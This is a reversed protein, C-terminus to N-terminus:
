RDDGQGGGGGLPPRGPFGGPPGGAGPAGFGGGGVPAAIAATELKVVVTRPTVNDRTTRRLTAKDEDIAVVVWDSNPIQSGPRVLLTTGDSLELLAIVSVGVVIGSLRVFPAPEFRAVPPIVESEQYETAFGFSASLREMGQREELAVERPKLQFADGGGGYKAYRASAVAALRTAASTDTSVTVPVGADV